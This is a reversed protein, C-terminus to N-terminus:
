KYKYYVDNIMDSFPRFTFMPAAEMKWSGNKTEKFIAFGDAKVKDVGIM